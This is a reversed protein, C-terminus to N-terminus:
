DREHGQELLGSPSPLTALQVIFDIAAALPYTLSKRIAQFSLLGANAPSGSSNLASIRTAISFSSKRIIRFARIERFFSNQSSM